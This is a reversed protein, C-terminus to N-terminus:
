LTCPVHIQATECSWVTIFKSEGIVGPGDVKEVKGNEDTIVWHRTELKCTYRPHVNADM